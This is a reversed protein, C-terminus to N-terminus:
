LKVGGRKLKGLKEFVPALISFRKESERQYAKQRDFIVQVMAELRHVTARLNDFDSRKPRGDRGYEVTEGGGGDSAHYNLPLSEVSNEVVDHVPDFELESEVRRRLV